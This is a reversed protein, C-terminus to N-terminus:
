KTAKRVEKAIRKKNNKACKAKQSCGQIVFDADTFNAPELGNAVKVVWYDAQGDEM